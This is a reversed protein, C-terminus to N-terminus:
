SENLDERASAARLMAESVKWRSKDKAYFLWRQLDDGDDGWFWDRFSRFPGWSGQFMKSSSSVELPAQHAFANM